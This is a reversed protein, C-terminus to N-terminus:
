LVNTTHICVEYRHSYHSHNLIKPSLKRKERVLSLNFFELQGKPIGAKHWPRKNSESDQIKKKTTSLIITYRIALLISSIQYQFQFPEGPVFMRGLKQGIFLLVAKKLDESTKWLRGVGGLFFRTIVRRIFSESHLKYTYHSKNIQLKMLIYNTLLSPSLAIIVVTTFGNM